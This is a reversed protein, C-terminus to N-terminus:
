LFRLINILYNNKIYIYPNGFYPLNDGDDYNFQESAAIYLLAANEADPVAPYWDNLETLELPYGMARYADESKKVLRELQIRYVGFLLCLVVIFIFFLRLKKRQRLFAM